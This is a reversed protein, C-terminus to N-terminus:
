AVLKSLDLIFHTWPRCEGGCGTKDFKAKCKDAEEKSSWLSYHVERCPTVFAFQGDGGHYVAKKGIVKKAIANWSQKRASM